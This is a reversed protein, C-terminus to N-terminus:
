HGTPTCNYQCDNVSEAIHRRPIILIHHPAQPHIDQFALVEKDDYVITSPIKGAVIKCFLCNEVFYEETSM